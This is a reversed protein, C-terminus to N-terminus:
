ILVQKEEATLHAFHVDLAELIPTYCADREPKGEVSWDRVFQKLTSRLKDMDNDSVRKTERVGSRSESHEHWTHGGDHSHPQFADYPHSELHEDVSPSFDHVTRSGPPADHSAHLPGGSDHSPHFTQGGDHSHLSPDLLRLLVMLQKLLYEFV